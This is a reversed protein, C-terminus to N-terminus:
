LRRMPSSSASGDRPVTDYTEGTARATLEWDEDNEPEHKGSQLMRPNKGLVEAIRDPLWTENANFRAFRRIDVPWLDLTPEGGIIWEALAKGAGGGSASAPAM